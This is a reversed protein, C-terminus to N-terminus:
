LDAFEQANPVGALLALLDAESMETAELRQREQPSLRLNFGHDGLIIARLDAASMTPGAEPPVDILHGFARLERKASYDYSTAAQHFMPLSVPRPAPRAQPRMWDSPLLEGLPPPPAARDKEAQVAELYLRVQEDTSSPYKARFEAETM